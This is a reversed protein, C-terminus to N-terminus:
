LVIGIAGRRTTLHPFVNNSYFSEQPCKEEAYSYLSCVPWCAKEPFGLLHGFSVWFSVKVWKLFQAGRDGDISVIGKIGEM